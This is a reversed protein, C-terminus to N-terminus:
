SFLGHMRAQRLIEMPHTLAYAAHFRISPEASGTDLCPMRCNVVNKLLGGYRDGNLLYDLPEERVNLGSSYEYCPVLEGFASVTAFLFGAFCPVTRVPKYANRVGNIFVDSNTEIGAARLRRTIRRLAACVTAPDGPVLPEFTKPDMNRHQLHSHVPTFQIKRVGWGACTEALRELADENLRSVTVNVGVPVPQPLNRFHGAAAAVKELGDVGRIKKYGEPDPHDCSLYVARLGAGALSRARAADIALGNTNIHVAIGAATFAAVCEELDGRLAPEGGGISVVRTKLRGLAPILARIEEATLEPKGNGANRWKDCAVCGSNCRDTIDLYLFPLVNPASQRRRARRVAAYIRAADMMTVSGSREASM